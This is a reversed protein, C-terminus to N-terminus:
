EGSRITNSPKSEGTSNLAIIRYYMGNESNEDTFLPLKAVTHGSHNEYVTDSINKGIIQWKGDSTGSREVRYSSAGASGQWSMAGSSDVFLLVPSPPVPELPTKYGRIEYAYKRYLQIMAKEDTPKTEDFGPYHISDSDGFDNHFYFGGWETRFRLSWLMAGSAASDIVARSVSRIREISDFIFEGYIYAKDNATAKRTNKAIDGDSYHTTVIDIDPNTYNKKSIYKHTGDMVLHNSDISKIYAAMEAIWTSNSRDIENGLEWCFIAPDDKYAIGTISNKRNLLWSIFDKFAKKQTPNQWFDGGGSINEWEKWGGFWSWNDVFPIIIRLGEEAAISIGRDLDRFLEENYSIQGNEDVYIHSLERKNNKGGEVSPVYIRFVRGGLRKVSRAADRQEFATVRHWPPSISGARDEVIHYNPINVSLFRFENNGEYLTSGDRRIFPSDEEIAKHIEVGNEFHRLDESLPKRDLTECSLLLFLLSILPLFKM